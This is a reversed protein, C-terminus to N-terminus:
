AYRQMECAALAANGPADFVCMLEDGIRKVVWGNRGEVIRGLEAFLPDVIKKAPEDGLRSCLEVWGSIDAFLVAPSKPGVGTKSVPSPIFKPPRNKRGSMARGKPWEPM